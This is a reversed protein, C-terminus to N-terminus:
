KCAMDRCILSGILNEYTTFTSCLNIAGARLLILWIDHKNIPSILFYLACLFSTVLESYGLGPDQLFRAPQYVDENDFHTIYM